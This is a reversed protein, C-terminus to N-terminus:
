LKHTILMPSMYSQIAETGGESGFGSDLVGGFPTEPLGLAFHNIGLMGAKITSAIRDATESSRTFAYSGLGVPLRNAEHLAADLSNMRAIMALPGFPEDNMALMATTAGSIITPKYFNGINGIRAGGTEVTAGKSVADQVMRDVTHLQGLTTMPGMHTAPDSGSGVVLKETESVFREVFEDHVRDAVLFRTPSVCVQGANRFKWTTALPVLADLDADEAVIVPAHGGLEMTVKKLQEGAAAAVIRGVRISGTLSIKRIEPAKILTDSIQPAMGWIVSIAKAPVGAELLCKGILWATVPTEESPKIVISCGASLAPAIKQMLGWAPFNWPAMIAVPGVPRQVVSLSINAFRSPVLRGYTRRGEEASWDLLDASSMWELTAQAVPKGQELMMIRGAETAKSRMLEAGRRLTKYREFASLTSWEQFGELALSAAEAAEVGAASPLSILTEGTSPDFVDLTGASGTVREVGGIILSVNELM